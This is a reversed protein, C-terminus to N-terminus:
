SGAIETDVISAIDSKDVDLNIYITDKAFVDQQKPIARIEITSDGVVTSTFTIANTYGIQVEGKVYDVTGFNKDKIIKANNSDFYFSYIKGKSDDEFYYTTSDNIVTFGSSYVSSIGSGNINDFENEFCVEYSAATNLLAGLDRRMRLTTNNRTISEDADDISGVINSYRVAGGFKSVTGSEGYNNLVTRVESSITAGDKLTKKDNYFVSSVVEINLIEADLIIIDLSAIRFSNLSNKIYTKAQGTLKGTGKPKIVVYVRGYEPIDLTEGGFVYIDDVSPYVRRILTEYDEAIVARSQAANERPARFKISSVDEIDSGGSSQEVATITVNNTVKVGRTDIINGFFTYNNVGKIGNADPGHTILYTVTIVAGSKLKKGFSGDGFTLEYNGNDIEEIWYVSSTSSLEVLNNANTYEVTQENVPDEQVEIRITSTDIKQNNLIFKQNYQSDDKTYKKTIYTGEYFPLDKFVCLGTSSVSASQPDIANFVINSTSSTAGLVMGPQLQLTRPFGEPYNILELQVQFTARTFASRTSIPLYGLSRANAVVNNRLTASSLFSENAIMNTSYANLQAQYSILNLIVQLNSGEFDYDTFEDTSKLYDILNTKIQDFDVETLNIAGAM